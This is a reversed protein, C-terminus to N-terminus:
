FTAAIQPDALSLIEHLEDEDLHSASDPAVGDLSEGVAVNEIPPGSVNLASTSNAAGGDLNEVPAVDEITPGSDPPSQNVGLFAGLAEFGPPNGFQGWGELIVKNDPNSRAKELWGDAIAFDYPAVAPIRRCLRDTGSRTHVCNQQSMTDARWDPTIVELVKLAKGPLNTHGAAHMMENEWQEYTKYCDDDSDPGSCEDSMHEEFVLQAIVAPDLGNILM